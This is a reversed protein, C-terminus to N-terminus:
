TLEIKGSTAMGNVRSVYGLSFVWLASFAHALLGWGFIDLHAISVWVDWLFYGGAMAQLFGGAGTYGWIRARADMSWREEDYWITWIALANILCSQVLSVVHVDWNLKTKRSLKSYTKPFLVNSIFPSGYLCIFHYLFFAFICEHIHAPLTNLHTYTSLKACLLSLLPPPSFPFPDLM